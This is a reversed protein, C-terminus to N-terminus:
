GKGYTCLMKQYAGRYNTFSNHVSRSMKRSFFLSTLARQCCQKDVQQRTARLREQRKWYDSKWVWYACRSNMLEHLWVQGADAESLIYVWVSVTMQWIMRAAGSYREIRQQQQNIIGTRKQNKGAEQRM